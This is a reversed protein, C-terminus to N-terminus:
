LLEARKLTRYNPHWTLADDMRGGMCDTKPGYVYDCGPIGCSWRIGAGSESNEGRYLWRGHVPCELLNVGPEEVTYTKGPLGMLTFYGNLLNYRVSCGGSGCHYSSRFGTNSRSAAPEYRMRHNDRSCLPKLSSSLEIPASLTM